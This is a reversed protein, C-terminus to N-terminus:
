RYKGYTPPRPPAPRSVPPAKYTQWQPKSQPRSQPQTKPQSQPQAQTAPKQRNWVSTKKPPPAQTAASTPRVSQLPQKSTRKNIVGGSSPTSTIVTYHRPPQAYGYAVPWGYAPITYGPTIYWYIFSHVPYSPQCLLDDVRMNTTPDVCVQAVSQGDGSCSSLALAATATIVTIKIKNM